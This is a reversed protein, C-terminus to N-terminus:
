LALCHVIVRKQRAGFSLPYFYHFLKKFRIAQSNDALTTGATRKLRKENFFSFLIEVVMLAILSVM